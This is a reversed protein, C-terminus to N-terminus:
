KGSSMAADLANIADQDSIVQDAKYVSECFSSSGAAANTHCYKNDFALVDRQTEYWVASHIPTLRKAEDPTRRGGYWFITLSVIGAVVLSVTIIKFTPVRVTDLGRTKNNHPLM